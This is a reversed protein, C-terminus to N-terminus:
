FNPPIYGFTANGGIWGGYKWYYVREAAIQLTSDIQVAVVKNPGVGYYNSGVQNAQIAMRTNPAVQIGSVVTPSGGTSSFYTFTVSVTQTLSPNTLIYSLDSVNVGTSDEKTDGGAFQWRTSYRSFAPESMLGDYNPQPQLQYTAYREVAVPKAADIKVSFGYSRGIETSNPNTITMQFRSNAPLTYTVINNFGIQPKELQYTLTIVTASSPNTFVYLQSDIGRVLGDSFIWNPQRAPTGGQGAVGKRGAAESGYYTEQEVVLPVVQGNAPCASNISQVRVSFQRINTPSASFTPTYGAEKVGFKVRSLPPVLKGTVAEPGTNDTSGALKNRYYYVSYCATIVNPNYISFYNDTDPFVNVNAFWWEFSLGTAGPITYGGNSQYLNQDQHSTRITREVLIPLSGSTVSVVTSHEAQIGALGFSADTGVDIDKRQNAPVSTTKTLAVAVGLNDTYYYIITVPVSTSPDNNFLHLTEVTSSITGSLTSGSAFYWVKGDAATRVAVETPYTIPVSAGQALSALKLYYTTNPTLGTISVDHTNVPNPDTVSNGVNPTFNPTLSYYVRTDGSCVTQYTIQTTTTTAAGISYGSFGCTLSQFNYNINGTAGPLPTAAVPTAFNPNTANAYYGIPDVFDNFGVIYNGQPINLTYSGDGFPTTQYSIAQSLQAPLPLLYATVRWAGAGAPSGNSTVTGTIRSSLAVKITLNTVVGNQTQIFNATAQNLQNSYWVTQYNQGTSGANVQLFYNTGAVLPKSIAIGTVIGSSTLDNGTNIPSGLPNVATTGTYIKLQANQVPTCNNGAADCTSADVVKVRFVGGQEFVVNVNRKQDDPNLLLLDATNFNYKTDFYQPLYPAPPIFKFRYTGAQVKADFDYLGTAANFTPPSNYVVPVETNNSDNRYAKIQTTSLNAAPGNVTFTGILEASRTVVDTYGVLSTGIITSTGAYQGQVLPISVVTSGNRQTLVYSPAGSGPPFVYVRVSGAPLNTFRVMGDPSVGSSLQTAYIPTAPNPGVDAVVQVNVSNYGTYSVGDDALSFIRLNLGAGQQLTIANLGISSGQISLQDAQALTDVRNDVGDVHYFGGIYGPVNPLNPFFAPPTLQITYTGNDLSATTFAGNYQGTNLTTETIVKNFDQVVTGTINYVTIRLPFSGFGAPPAPNFNVVGQINNGPRLAVNAVQSGALSGVTLTFAASETPVTNGPTGGDWWGAVYVANTDRFNIKYKGFDLLGPFSYIGSGNTTANSIISSQGTIPDVSYVSVSVNGLAIPTPDNNTVIGTLGAGGTLNADIGTFDVGAVTTILKTATVNTSARDQSYWEGVYDTGIPTVFKVTYTVFNSIKTITYAGTVDVPDSQRVPTTNVYAVAYSGIAGTSNNTITGRIKNNAVMQAIIPTGDPIQSTNPYYDQSYGTNNPDIVVRILSLKQTPTILSPNCPTDCDVPNSLDSLWYGQYNNGNTFRLFVKGAPLPNNGAYADVMFNGNIDTSTTIVSTNPTDQIATTATLVEVTANSIPVGSTIPNGSNRIYVQGAIAGPRYLLPQLNTSSTGLADVDTVLQGTTDDKVLCDRPSAEETNFRLVAAGSLSVAKPYYQPLLPNGAPPIFYLKFKLTKPITIPGSYFAASDPFHFITGRTQPSHVTATAIPSNNLANILVAQSGDISNGLSGQITGITGYIGYIDGTTTDFNCANAPTNVVMQSDTGPNTSSSAAKVLENGPNTSNAAAKAAVPPTNLAAGWVQAPSLWETLLPGFLLLASMVIRCMARPTM